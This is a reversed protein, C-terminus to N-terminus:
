LTHMSIRTNSYWAPVHLLQATVAGIRIICAVKSLLTIAVGAIHILKQMRHRADQMDWIGATSEFVARNAAM